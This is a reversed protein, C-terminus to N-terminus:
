DYRHMLGYITLCHVHAASPQNYVPVTYPSSRYISLKINANLIGQVDYSLM